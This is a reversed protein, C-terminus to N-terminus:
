KMYAPWGDDDAVLADAFALDEPEFSPIPGIIEKCVRIPWQRDVGRCEPCIGTKSKTRKGCEKCFRVKCKNCIGSKSTTVRGCKDCFTRTRHSHIYSWWATYDEEKIVRIKGTGFIDTVKYRIDGTANTILNGIKLEERLTVRMSPRRGVVRGHRDHRIVELDYTGPKM